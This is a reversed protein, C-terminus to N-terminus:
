KEKLVKLFTNILSNKKHNAKNKLFVLM